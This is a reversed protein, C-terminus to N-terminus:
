RSARRRMAPSLTMATAPAGGRGIRNHAAVAYQAYAKELRPAVSREIGSPGARTRRRLSRERNIPVDRFTTRGSGHAEPAHLTLDLGRRGGQREPERRSCRPAGRARPRGQWASALPALLPLRGPRRACTGRTWPTPMLRRRSSSCQTPGADRVCATTTTTQRAMTAARTPRCGARASLRPVPRGCGGPDARQVPRRTEPLGANPRLQRLGAGSAM